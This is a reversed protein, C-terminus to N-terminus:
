NIKDKMKMLQHFLTKNRTELAKDILQVYNMEELQLILEDIESKNEPLIHVSANEIKSNKLIIKLHEYINSHVLLQYIPIRLYRKGRQFIFYDFKNQIRLSNLDIVIEKGEIPVFHYLEDDKLISLYQYAFVLRISTGHTKIYFPRMYQVHYM